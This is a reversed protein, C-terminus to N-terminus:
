ATSDSQFRALRMVIEAAYHQASIRDLPQYFDDIRHGLFEMLAEAIAEQAAQPLRGSEERRLLSMRGHLMHAHLRKALPPSFYLSNDGQHM